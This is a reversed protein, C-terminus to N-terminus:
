DLVMTSSTSEHQGVVTLTKGLAGSGRSLKQHNNQKINLKFTPHENSGGGLLPTTTRPKILHQGGYASTM